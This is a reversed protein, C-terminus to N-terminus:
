SLSTLFAATIAAVLALVLVVVGRLYSGRHQIFGNKPNNLYYITLTQPATGRELYHYQYTINDVTYNYIANVKATPDLRDDTLVWMKVRIGLATHGLAIARKVRRSVYVSGSYKQLTILGAILVTLFTVLVILVQPTVTERLMDVFGDLLERFGNISENM